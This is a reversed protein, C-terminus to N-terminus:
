LYLYHRSLDMGGHYALEPVGEVLTRKGNIRIQAFIYKGQMFTVGVYKSRRKNTRSYQNQGHTCNRLNSRQNNLGNHDIHHVELHLPTNMIERHMIKIRNTKRGFHYYRKAYFTNGQKHAYWKWQNLYEYDEDDVLTVKGQTLKIEKMTGVMLIIYWFFFHSLTPVEGKMLCNGRVIESWLYYIYKM